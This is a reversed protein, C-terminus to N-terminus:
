IYIYTIHMHVIIIPVHIITTITNVFPIDPITSSYVVALLQSNGIFM